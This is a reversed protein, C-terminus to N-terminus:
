GEALPVNAGTLCSLEDTVAGHEARTREVMERIGEGLGVSPQWDLVQRARRVDLCIQFVEGPEAPRHEAVAPV